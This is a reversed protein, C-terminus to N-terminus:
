VSIPAAALVITFVTEPDDVLQLKFFSLFHVVYETVIATSLPSKILGQLGARSARVLCSPKNLKKDNM